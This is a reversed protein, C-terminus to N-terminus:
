SDYPSFYGGIGSILAVALFISSGLPIKRNEIIIRFGRHLRAFSGVLRESKKLPQESTSM